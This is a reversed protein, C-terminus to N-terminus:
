PNMNLKLLAHHRVNVLVDIYLEFIVKRDLFQREFGTLLNYLHGELLKNSYEKELLRPLTFIDVESFYPVNIRGIGTRKAEVVSPRRGRARSIANADADASDSDRSVM